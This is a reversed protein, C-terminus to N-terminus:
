AGINPAYINGVTVDTEPNFEQDKHLTRKKDKTVTQKLMQESVLIAGGAKGSKNALFAKKWRRM